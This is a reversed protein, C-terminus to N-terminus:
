KSKYNPREKFRCSDECNYPNCTNCEVPMISEDEVILSEVLKNGHVCETCYVHTNKDM